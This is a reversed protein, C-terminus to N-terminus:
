IPRLRWRADNELERIEAKLHSIKIYNDNDQRFSLL